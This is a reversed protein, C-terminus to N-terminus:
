PELPVDHRDRHHPRPLDNYKPEPEVCGALMVAAVIAIIINKMTYM